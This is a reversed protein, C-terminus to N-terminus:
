KNENSSIKNIMKKISNIEEMEDITFRIGYNEEISLLINMNALSDWELLDGMKLKEFDKPCKQLELIECFIEKLEM